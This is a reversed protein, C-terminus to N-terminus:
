IGSCDCSRCDESKYFLQTECFKCEVKITQCKCYAITSFSKTYENNLINSFITLDEPTFGNEFTILRQNKDIYQFEGRSKYYEHILLCPLTNKNKNKINKLKLGKEDLLKKIESWELFINNKDEQMEKILYNYKIDLNKINDIVVNLNSIKKSLESMTVILNEIDLKLLEFESDLKKIIDIDLRIKNIFRESFSEVFNQMNIKEKELKSELNIINEELNLKNELYSKNISELKSLESSILMICSNLKNDHLTFLEKNNKNLYYEKLAMIEEEKLILEDIKQKILNNNKENKIEMEKISMKNKTIQCELNGINNRFQTTNFM